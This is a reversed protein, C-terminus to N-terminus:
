LRAMLLHRAIRYENEKDHDVLREAKLCNRRHELELLKTNESKHFHDANDIGRNLEMVLSYYRTIQAIETESLAGDALLAALSTQYVGTPLRYLPAAVSDDLYDQAM